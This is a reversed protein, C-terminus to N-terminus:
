LGSINNSQVWMEGSGAVPTVLYREHGFRYKYDIVECEVTITPVESSGAIPPKKFEVFVKKGVHKFGKRDASEQNPHKKTMAKSSM